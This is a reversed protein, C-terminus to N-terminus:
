RREARPIRAGALSPPRRHRGLLELHLPLEVDVGVEGDGVQGAEPLDGGDLPRDLVVQLGDVEVGGVEPQDAGPDGQPPAGAPGVLAPVELERRVVAGPPFPVAGEPTRGLPRGPCHDRRHQADQPTRRGTRHRRQPGAAQDREKAVGVPPHERLDRVVRDGRGHRRRVRRRGRLHAAPALDLHFQARTVLGQERRDRLAQDGGAGPRRLGGRLDAPGERPPQGRRRRGRLPSRLPRARPLHDTSARRACTAASWAASTMTRVSRGSATWLSRTAARRRRLMVAATRGTSSRAAM